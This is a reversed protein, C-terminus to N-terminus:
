FGVLGTVILIAALVYLVVSVTMGAGVFYGAVALILGLVVRIARDTPSENGFRQLIEM